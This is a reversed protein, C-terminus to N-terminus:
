NRDGLEPKSKTGLILVLVLVRAKATPAGVKQFISGELKLNTSFIAVNRVEKLYMGRCGHRDVM